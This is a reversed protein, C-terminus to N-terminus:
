ILTRANLPLGGSRAHLAAAIPEAPPAQGLWAGALIALDSASLPPIAEVARADPPNGTVAAIVAVPLASRRTLASLMRLSAEDAAEANDILLLVRKGFGAGEALGSLLEAWAAQTRVEAVRRDLGGPDGGLAALLIEQGPGPKRGGLEAITGLLAFPNPGSDRADVLIVRRGGTAAEARLAELLRTKGM